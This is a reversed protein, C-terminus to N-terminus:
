DLKKQSEPDLAENTKDSDPINSKYINALSKIKTKLNRPNSAKDITRAKLRDLKRYATKMKANLRAIVQQGKTIKGANSQSLFVLLQEIDEDSIKDETQAALFLKITDYFPKYTKLQVELDEVVQLTQDDLESKGPPEDGEEGTEMGEPPPPAGGAKEFDEESTESDSWRSPLRM